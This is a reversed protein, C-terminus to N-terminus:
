SCLKTRGLMTFGERKKSVNQQEQVIVLTSQQEDPFLLHAHGNQQIFNNGVVACRLPSHKPAIMFHIDKYISPMGVLMIPVMKTAEVLVGTLDPLKHPIAADVVDAQLQLARVLSKPIWNAETGTDEILPFKKLSGTRLNITTAVRMSGAIDQNEPLDLEPEPTNVLIDPTESDSDDQRVLAMSNSEFVQNRYDEILGRLLIMMQEKIEEQLENDYKNFNSELSRQVRGPLEAKIYAEYRDFEPGVDSPYDSLIPVLKLCSPHSIYSVHRRSVSRIM